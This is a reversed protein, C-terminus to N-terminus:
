VGSLNNEISLTYNAYMQQSAFSRQINNILRNSKENLSFNGFGFM